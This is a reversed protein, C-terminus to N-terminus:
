SYIRAGPVPSPAPSVSPQERPARLPAQMTPFPTPDGRFRLGSGALAVPRPNEAPDTGEVRRRPEFYRSVEDSPGNSLEKQGDKQQGDM